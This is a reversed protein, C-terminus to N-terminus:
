VNNSSLLHPNAVIVPKIILKSSLAQAKTEDSDYIHTLEANIKKADIALAIQTGIAGCGLLGIKKM